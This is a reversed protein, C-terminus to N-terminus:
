KDFREGAPRLNDRGIAGVSWAFDQIMATESLEHRGPLRTLKCGSDRALKPLLNIAVGQHLAAELVPGITCGRFKKADGPM